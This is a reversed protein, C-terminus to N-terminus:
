KLHEGLTISINMTVEPLSLDGALVFVEEVALLQDGTVSLSSNLLTLTPPLLVPTLIPPSLASTSFQALSLFSLCGLCLTFLCVFMATLM